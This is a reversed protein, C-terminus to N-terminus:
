LLESKFLKLTDNRLYIDNDLWIFLEKFIDDLRKQYCIVEKKQKLTEYVGGFWFYRCNVLSEKFVIREDIVGYDALLASFFNMKADVFLQSPGWFRPNAEIMYHGHKNHKVEVMVLGHFGLKIFLKEYKSSEDTLHYKATVAAVMSKGGPQQAINEQSYKYVNGNRHYYYLLYYSIGDIYEQFYYDKSNETRTFTILATENLIIIPSLIKGTTESFYKKPKAVCPYKIKALSSFEGPTLINNIKCINGFSQKNSVLNYLKNEVLPIECGYKEFADRQSLL